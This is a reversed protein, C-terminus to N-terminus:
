VRAAASQKMAKDRLKADLYYGRGRWFELIVGTVSVAAAGVALWTAQAPVALAIGLLASSGIVRVGWTTATAAARHHSLLNDLGGVALEVALIVILPWSAAPTEVLVAFILAPMALAGVIRVVDAPRFDARGRLDRFGVLVYDVGSLWTIGVILFMIVQMTLLVDGHLQLALVIVFSGSMVLAGRWLKKKAFWLAAMAVLPTIVGAILIGVMVNSDGILPFLILVGIGQMQTWTKVKGLYSTKLSMNRQEYASRLATVLFERVFMLACAWAPILGMDAFPLYIFAIFVKDAIPDLLGGLVTPGQKRAMWGDVFDTCGVVTGIALATWLDRDTGRYILWTLLPMPILRAVTVMNATILPKKKPPAVGAGQNGVAPTV